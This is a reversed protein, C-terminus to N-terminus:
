RQPLGSEDSRKMRGPTSLYVVNEKGPAHMGLREQAAIDIRELRSLRAKELQLTVLREKVRGKEKELGKIDMQIEVMRIYQWVYVSLMVVILLIAIIYLLTIRGRNWLYEQVALDAKAARANNM